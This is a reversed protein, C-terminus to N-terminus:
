LKAISSGSQIRLSQLISHATCYALTQITVMPNVGVASPLVSADSVYLGEVEWSEGDGDVVSHKPNSGMRCSSMQHGSGMSIQNKKVGRAKVRRIYAEIDSPNAGKLSFREGDQQHTGVETAGAAILVRLGKEIGELASAEDEANLTYTIVPTGDAEVSVQGSSKDRVVVCLTVTRSFRAMREKFDAASTWPQFSAFSGPHTSPCELLAVPESCGKKYIPSYATLIAGEYCTGTPGRGQPFYGWLFVVPHLHLDKGINPNRLESKLLLPPTMLSGSAMVVAKAEIYVRRQTNGIRAV